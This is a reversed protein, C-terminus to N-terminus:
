LDIPQKFTIGGSSKLIMLRKLSHFIRNLLNVGLDLDRIYILGISVTLLITEQM